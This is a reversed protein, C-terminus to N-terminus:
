KKKWLNKLKYIFENDHPVPNLEILKGSVQRSTVTLLRTYEQSIRADWMNKGQKGLGSLHGVSETRKRRTVIDGAGM